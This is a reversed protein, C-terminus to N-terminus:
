EFTIILLIGKARERRKKERQYASNISLRYKVLTRSSFTVIKVKFAARQIKTNSIELYANM